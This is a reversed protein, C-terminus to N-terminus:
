DDGATQEAARALSFPSQRHQQSLLGDIIQRPSEFDPFAIVNALTGGDLVEQMDFTGGQDRPDLGGGRHVVPAPLFVIDGAELLTRHPDDLHDPSRYTWVSQPRTDLLRHEQRDQVIYLTSQKPYYRYCSGWMYEFSCRPISPKDDASQQVQLRSYAGACTACGSTANGPANPLRTTRRLGRHRPLTPAERSTLSVYSLEGLLSVSSEGDVVVVDGCGLRQYGTTEGSSSEPTWDGSFEAFADSGTDRIIIVQVSNSPAIRLESQVRGRAIEIKPHRERFRRALEEFSGPVDDGAVGIYYPRVIRGDTVIDSRQSM